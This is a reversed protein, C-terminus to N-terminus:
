QLVVDWGRLDEESDGNSGELTESESDAATESMQEQGGCEGGRPWFSRHVSSGTRM